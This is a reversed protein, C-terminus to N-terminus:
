LASSSTLEISIYKTIDQLFISEYYTKTPFNDEMLRSFNAKQGIKAFNAFNEDSKQFFTEIPEVLHSVFFHKDVFNNLM